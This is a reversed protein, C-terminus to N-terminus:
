DEKVIRYAVIDFNSDSDYDNHSWRWWKASTTRQYGNRFKIEVRTKGNVPCVGGNWTIWDDRDPEDEFSKVYRKSSKEQRAFSEDETLTRMLYFTSFFDM